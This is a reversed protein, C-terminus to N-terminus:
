PRRSAEPAGSRMSDTEKRIWSEGLDKIAKLDRSKETVAVIEGFADPRYCALCGLTSLKMMDGGLREYTKPDCTAAQMLAIQSVVILAQWPDSRSYGAQHILLAQHKECMNPLM